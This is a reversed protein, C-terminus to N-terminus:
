VEGVAIVTGLGFWVGLKSSQNRGRTGNVLVSEAIRQRRENNVEVRFVGDQGSDVRTGM